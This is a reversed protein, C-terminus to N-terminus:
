IVLIIIFFFVVNRHIETFLPPYVQKIKREKKKRVWKRAYGGCRPEGGEKCVPSHALIGIVNCKNLALCQRQCTKCWGREDDQTKTKKKWNQLESRQCSKSYVVSHLHKCRGLNWDVQLTKKEWCLLLSNNWYTSYCSIPLCIWCHSIYLSFPM